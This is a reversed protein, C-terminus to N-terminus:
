GGHKRAIVVGFTAQLGGFGAAMWFDGWPAPTALAVMGLAMFAMGMVPVSRVSNAGGAVVGAGYLLLWVGPLLGFAGMRALAATLVAAAIFPPVVGQVFKKGPGSDLPQGAQRAKHAMALSLFVCSLAAEGMWVGLWALPTAQASAALAALPVTPGWLALGRGPVATFSASRAMTERIFRLNDAARDHLHPPEPRIPHISAM